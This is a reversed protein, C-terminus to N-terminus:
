LQLPASAIGELSAQENFYTCPFEVYLNWRITKRGKQFLNTASRILLTITITLFEHNLLVQHRPM